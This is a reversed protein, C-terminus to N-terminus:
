GILESEDWLEIGYIIAQYILKIYYPPGSITVTTPSVVATFTEQLESIILRDHPQHM